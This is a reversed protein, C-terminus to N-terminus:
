FNFKNTIKQKLESSNLENSEEKTELKNDPFKVNPIYSLIIVSYLIQILILIWLHNYNYKDVRVIVALVGGILISLSFFINVIGTFLAYSTGELYKPCHKACLSLIPLSNFETILSLLATNTLSFIFDSIGLKINVRLILLLSMIYLLIYVVCNFTYFYQLNINKFITNLLIIGILFFFASIFNLYGLTIPTFKLEITFYYYFIQTYNPCM